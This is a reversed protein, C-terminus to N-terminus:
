GWTRLAYGLGVLAGLGIALKGGDPLEQWRHKLKALMGCDCDEDGAECDCDSSSNDLALAGYHYGNELALGGYGNELALGGMATAIADPMAPGSGLPNPVGHAIPINTPMVGKRIVNARNHVHQQALTAQLQQLQANLLMRRRYNLIQQATAVRRGGRHRALHRRYRVLSPHMPDGFNPLRIIDGAPGGPHSFSSAPGVAPLREHLYEPTSSVLPRDHATYSYPQYSPSGPPLYLPAFQSQPWTVSSRNPVPARSRPIPRPFPLMKPWSAPWPAAHRAHHM